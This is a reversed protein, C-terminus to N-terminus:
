VAFHNTWFQTLRELFPRETSVALRLRATAETAYIPRLFQPLRQQAPEDAAAGGQAAQQRREAQIERRLELAQALIQASSLLEADALSPPPARLQTRLWGRADAGILALEGPRAGLGFRNAAIAATIDESM